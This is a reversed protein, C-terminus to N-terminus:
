RTSNKNRAMSANGFVSLLREAHNFWTWFAPSCAGAENISSLFKHFAVTKGSGSDGAILVAQTALKQYEDSRVKAWLQRFTSSAHDDAKAVEQNPNVSVLTDYGAFVTYNSEDEIRQLLYKSLSADGPVWLDEEKPFWVPM